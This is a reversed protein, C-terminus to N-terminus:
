RQCTPCYFSSRGSQVIRRIKSACGKTRCPQGERDYVDLRQQFEGSTGDTHAYDRLTSGGADIAEGLVNRISQVLLEAKESVGRVRAISGALRKPSLGSRYLVECVYINGLGAVIRQDLLAAKLPAKKGTFAQNLFHANLENGLPEVGLGALFKNTEQGGPAILDVFGFRRPDTYVIRAGDDLDIVLHDHTGEGAHNAQDLYYFEGLNKASGEPRWVTFRGTMGLHVLLTHGAELEILIYKARRRLGTVRQGTLTDALNAPFPFRLDPRNLRITKITRGQLAPELGRRVTEVEPLEPMEAYSEHGAYLAAHEGQQPV